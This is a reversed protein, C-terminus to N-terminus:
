RHQLHRVFVRHKPRLIGFHQYRLVVQEDKSGLRLLVLEVFVEVDLLLFVFINGLLAQVLDRVLGEDLHHVDLGEVEHVELEELPKLLWCATEDELCVVLGCFVQIDM